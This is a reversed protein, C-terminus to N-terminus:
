VPRYYVRPAGVDVVTASLTELTAWTDEQYAPEDVFVLTAGRMPENTTIRSLVSADLEAIADQMKRTARRGPPCIHVSGPPLTRAYHVAIAAIALTKATHRSRCILSIQGEKKTAKFVQAFTEHENISLKRKLLTEASQIILDLASTMSHNTTMMECWGISANM